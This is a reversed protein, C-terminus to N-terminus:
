EQQEVKKCHEPSCCLHSLQLFGHRCLHANRWNSFMLRLNQPHVLLLGQHVFVYCPLQIFVEIATLEFIDECKRLNFGSHANNTMGYNLADYDMSSLLLANM